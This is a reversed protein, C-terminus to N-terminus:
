ERVALLTGHVAMKRCGVNRYGVEALLPGRYGTAGMRSVRVNPWMGFLADLVGREGSGVASKGATAM